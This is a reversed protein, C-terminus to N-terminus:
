PSEWGKGSAYVRGDKCMVCRHEADCLESPVKVGTVQLVERCPADSACLYGSENCDLCPWSEPDDPPVQAPHDFYERTM